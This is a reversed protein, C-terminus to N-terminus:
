RPLDLAKAGLALARVHAHLDSLGSGMTNVCLHTAGADRWQQAREVVDEASGGGYSVQGEMGVASPARGAEAAAEAIVARANDLEPGPAMLPFWGDALRGTRRYAV